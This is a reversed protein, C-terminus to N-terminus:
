VPNLRTLSCDKARLKDRLGLLYDMADLGVQLSGLSLLFTIGVLSSSGKLKFSAVMHVKM